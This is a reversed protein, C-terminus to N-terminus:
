QVRVQYRLVVDEGGYIMNEIPVLFRTVNADFRAPAGGGGSQLTYGWTAGDDSSYQPAGLNAQGQALGCGSVCSFPQNSGYADMSVAVFKGLNDEVLVNRSPGPGQSEITVEYTVINGPDVGPLPVTNVVGAIAQIVKDVNMDTPCVSGAAFAVTPESTGCQRSRLDLAATTLAQYAGGPKRFQVTVGGDNGGEFGLIRLSHYGPLLNVSGELVEDAADWNNAWWLDDNWQEELPADDVYLGGGRGFDAGYRFSWLGEEGAGVLFWSESSFAINTSRNPPGFEGSNNIGTFNTIFKCGYGNPSTSAAFANEAQTRNTPDVSSQKTHFKIGINGFTLTASAASAVRENGYVLYVVRDAFATMSPVTVWIIATNSGADWREIYFTLETTDDQDLVRLDSGDASWVYNGHLTAASINVRAQYNTLTGGTTNSITVPTKFPWDCDHAAALQWTLTLLASLVIHNVKIGITRM